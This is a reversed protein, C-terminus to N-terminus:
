KILMFPCTYLTINYKKRHVNRYQGSVDKRTKDFVAEFVKMAKEYGMRFPRFSIVILALFETM